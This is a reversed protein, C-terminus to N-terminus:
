AAASAEGSSVRAIEALLAAPSIPKGVVGNMGAALYARRQHPLVNATLAIIPTHACAELARIRRAAEAGDIGPMQVDMLILDFAGTQAAEVGLLGDAATEVSAGLNSLLRTAILRNTANDEVVLITLGSLFPELAQDAAAAPEVPEAAVELWFTSGRGALSTVGVDGGMMAALRKTIALGLGAGGHKRTASADAQHFVQFIRAQADASIGVGTDEVEFRLLPCGGRSVPHVRVEIRGRDTFKVANGVLNFLAQRLRVPDIDIWGLERAVQLSLKVGKAQAQPVLMKVVSEAVAAPDTPEAALELQGAEIASYDIMDGLLESLMQGCSLAESLLRRGEESLTEHKLLHLIGIVGNMPTRLEHSMNAVFASKAEAAAQADLRARALARRRSLRAAKRASVDRDPL